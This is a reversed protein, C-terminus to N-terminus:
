SRECKMRTYVCVCVCVCVTTGAHCQSECLSVCPLSHHLVESFKKSRRIHFLGLLVCWLPQHKSWCISDLQMCKEQAGMGPSSAEMEGRQVAAQPGLITCVNPLICDMRTVGVLHCGPLQAEEEGMIIHGPHGTSLRGNAPCKCEYARTSQRSM